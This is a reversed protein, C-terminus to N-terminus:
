FLCGLHFATTVAEKFSEKQDEVECEGQNSQNEDSETDVNLHTGLVVQVEERVVVEVSRDEDDDEPGDDEEDCEESTTTSAPLALTHHVHVAEQEEDDEDGLYSTQRTLFVIM